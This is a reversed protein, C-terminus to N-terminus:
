IKLIPSVKFILPLSLISFFEITTSIVESFDKLILPCPSKNSESEYVMCLFIKFVLEDDKGKVEIKLELM